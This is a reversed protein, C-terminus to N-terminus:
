HQFDVYDKQCHNEKSFRQSPAFFSSLSYLKQLPSYSKNFVSKVDQIESIKAKQLVENELITSILIIHTFVFFTTM